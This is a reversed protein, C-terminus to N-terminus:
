GDVASGGQSRSVSFTACKIRLLNIAADVPFVANTHEKAALMGRGRNEPPFGLRPGSNTDYWTRAELEAEAVASRGLAKIATSEGLAREGSFVAPVGNLRLDKPNLSKAATM